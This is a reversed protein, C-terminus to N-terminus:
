DPLNRNASLIADAVARPAVSPGAPCIVATNFPQAEGFVCAQAIEPRHLLEAEPWEPSVNRGFSTIFVNKRRGTVYLFGDDDLRGLDGTAIVAGAFKREGLYGLMAQNEVLIEGDPAISVNVGDLPKGVSGPRATGPRNLAVVSACESLGYGQFAPIGAAAAEQLDSEAVRAGGVAVFKLSSSGGDAACAATLGRLLQPQLILSEAAVADVTRRFRAIDLRSSGYLGLAALPPVHVTTGLMLPVYVGAINELLTALPMVCLHQAIDIDAFTSGLRLAVQDITDASLCVGRPQGTSGSTFTIKAAAPAQGAEADLVAPRQLLRLNGHDRDVREFAAFHPFREHSARDLILTDLSSAEIVHDLQSETFYPPLPVLTTGSQLAALDAIIWDIGNDALLGATRCRHARLTESFRDVQQLLAAFGLEGHSGSLATRDPAAHARMRLATIIASMSLIGKGRRGASRVLPRASRGAQRSHCGPRLRLLPGLPRGSKAVRGRDPGTFCVWEYGNGALFPVLDRFFSTVIDRDDVVFQGVEVIRDRRAAAGTADAIVGDISTDLYSELFLPGSAASRLGIVGTAGSAHRYYAFRPMFGEICADFHMGFGSRIRAELSAREASDHEVISFSNRILTTCGQLVPTAPTTLETQQM